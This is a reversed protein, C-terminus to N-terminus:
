CCAGSHHSPAIIWSSLLDLAVHRKCEIQQSRNPFCTANLASAEPEHATKTGNSLQCGQWDVAVKGPIELEDKGGGNELLRLNTATDLVTTPMMRLVNNAFKVSGSHSRGVNM